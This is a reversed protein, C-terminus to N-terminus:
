KLSKPADILELSDVSLGPIGKKYKLRKRWHQKIDPSLRKQLRQIKVRHSPSYEKVGNILGIMKAIYDMQAIDHEVFIDLLKRARKNKKGLDKLFPARKPQTEATLDPINPVLVTDELEILADFKSNIDHIVGPFEGSQILGNVEYQKTVKRIEERRLAEFYKKRAEIKKDSNDM